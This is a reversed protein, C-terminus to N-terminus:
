PRYRPADKPLVTVLVTDGLHRRIREVHSRNEWNLQLEIPEGAPPMDITWGVVGEATLREGIARVAEEHAQYMGDDEYMVDAAVAGYPM